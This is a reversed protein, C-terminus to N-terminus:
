LAALAATIAEKLSSIDKKDVKGAIAAALEELKAEVAKNVLETIISTESLKEVLHYPNNLIEEAVDEYRIEAGLDSYSIEDHLNSYDIERALDEYCIELEGTDIHGSVEKALDDMDIHNVLEKALDEVEIEIECKM